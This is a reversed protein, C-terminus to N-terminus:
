YAQLLTGNERRTQLLQVKFREERYTPSFILRAPPIIGFKQLSKLAVHDFRGHVGKTTEATRQEDPELGNFDYPRTSSSEYLFTVALPRSSPPHM